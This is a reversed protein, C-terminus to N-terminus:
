HILKSLLGGGGGAALALLAIQIRVKWVNERQEKDEDESSKKVDSIKQYLDVHTATNAIASDKSRQAEMAIKEDLNKMREEHAGLKVATDRGEGELKTITAQIQTFGANMERRLNQIETLILQDDM